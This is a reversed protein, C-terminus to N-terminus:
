SELRAIRDALIKTLQRMTAEQRDLLVEDAIPLEGYEDLAIFDQLKKLRVDLEAKETKLRTRWNTM